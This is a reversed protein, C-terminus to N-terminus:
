VRSRRFGRFIARLVAHLIFLTILSLVFIVWGSFEHFFGQAKNPDWYLGTLGTGMIRLGNALVAIPVSAVALIVRITNDTELLYGYVIALTGLSILSRIGSCAEVVELSMNSLQIVNGNQLVPVGLFRLFSTALDSALFQLPITVLNMVLTPPPVMLFLFLWPFLVARFFKWGQFYIVLGAIVFLLSTRSLFLEAGLVGFVLVGLGGFIVLLGSWSPRSEIKALRKRDKWILFASFLPVFFGHSFNPDSWWQDVLRHLISVYLYALLIALVVGPWLWQTLPTSAHTRTDEEVVQPSQFQNM